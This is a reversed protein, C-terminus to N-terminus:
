KSMRKKSSSKAVRPIIWRGHFSEAYPGEPCVSPYKVVSLKSGPAYRGPYGFGAKSLADSLSLAQIARM